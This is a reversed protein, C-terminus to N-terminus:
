ASSRPSCLQVHPREAPVLRREGRVEREPARRGGAREQPRSPYARRDGGEARHWQLITLGDETRNTVVAFYHVSSGDAFLSGQRKQVRVALYRRVCPRDKRHDGDDRSTRAGRGLRPDGGAGGAGGALRVRPPPRIEAKLAGLSRRQHRVRDQPQGRVLPPRRDRVPRQRRAPPDAHGGPAPQGRGTRPRARERLRGPCPWGPVPRPPHCGARGLPRRGAPLGADRRLGRHGRGQPERRPHRGRRPDGDNGPGASSAPWWRAIPPGLGALPASELPITAQPGAAWLPGHEM